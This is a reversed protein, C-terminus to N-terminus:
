TNKAVAVKVQIPNWGFDVPNESAQYIVIDLLKMQNPHLSKSIDDPFWSDRGGARGGAMM